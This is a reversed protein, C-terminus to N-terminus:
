YKSDKSELLQKCFEDYLAQQGPQIIIKIMLPHKRLILQSKIANIMSKVVIEPSCGHRGCGIAPFAISTFQHSIVHLIVTSILDAFSQRLEEEDDTPRWNLFLISNCSLNGPVTSILLDNSNNTYANTYETEVIGGAAEFISRLLAGSSSSGVIVDVQRTSCTM